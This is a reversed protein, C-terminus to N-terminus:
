PLISIRFIRAAIWTAAALAIVAIVLWLPMSGGPEKEESM